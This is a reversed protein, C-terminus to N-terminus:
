NFKRRLGRPLHQVLGQIGRKLGPPLYRRLLVEIGSRRRFVIAADIRRIHEPSLHWGSAGCNELVHGISNGKPRTVVGDLCLCWNLAVQVPTRGTESAVEQLVGRPDCDLIHQFGRALPSYAIVTIGNAQCYPLLDAAITRDILNFRVQNSVIPYKRMAKRAHQLQALSFNSVGIFRVKGADVLEEMAGLTEEVPIDDNPEHLQYLDIRDTRLRSLSDHAAKILDVRRFHAKSVKTALFVAARRDAMAEAAVAENGYSEATDIFCAGTDLGRRLPEPGAHYHWMGLGLEPIRVGTKGLEKCRMTDTM